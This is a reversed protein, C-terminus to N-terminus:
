LGEWISYGEETGLDKQWTRDCEECRCYWGLPVLAGVGSEWPFKLM